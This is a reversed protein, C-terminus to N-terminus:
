LYEALRTANKFEVEIDVKNIGEEDRANNWSELKELIKDDCFYLYNDLIKKANKSKTLRIPLIEAFRIFVANIIFYILEDSYKIVKDDNKSKSIIMFERFLKDRYNSLLNFDSKNMKKMQEICENKYELIFKENMGLENEIHTIIGMALDFYAMNRLENQTMM